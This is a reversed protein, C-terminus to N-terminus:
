FFCEGGFRCVVARSGNIIHRCQIISPMRYKDPFLQFDLLGFYKIKLRNFDNDLTFGDEAEGPVAAITDATNHWRWLREIMSIQKEQNESAAFFFQSM